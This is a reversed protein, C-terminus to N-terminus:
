DFFSHICKKCYVFVFSKMGQNTYYNTTPTHPSLQGSMGPKQHVSSTFSPAAVGPGPVLLSVNPPGAVPASFPSHQPHVQTPLTGGLPSAEKPLLDLLLNLLLHFYTKLYTKRLIEHPIVKKLIQNTYPLRLFTIEHLVNRLFRFYFCLEFYFLQFVRLTFVANDTFILNDNNSAVPSIYLRSNIVMLM